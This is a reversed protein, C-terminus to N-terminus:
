KGVVAPLSPKIEGSGGYFSGALTQQSVVDFQDNLIVLSMSQQTSHGVNYVFAVRDPAVQKPTRIFTGGIPGGFPLYKSSVVNLSADTEIVFLSDLLLDPQVLNKFAFVLYGNNYQTYGALYDFDDFYAPIPEGWVTVNNETRIFETQSIYELVNPPVTGLNQSSIENGDADVVVEYQNGSDNYLVSLNDNATEEACVWVGTAIEADCDGPPMADNIVTFSGSVINNSENSEAVQDDADAKLILYYTSATLGAPITSSGAITEALFGAGYNGTLITGDQIDDNSLTNDTSIHAKIFFDGMIDANGVNALDFNYNLVQGDEVSPAPIEFNSIELDPQNGTGNDLFFSNFGINNNESQEVVEDDVDAVCLYWIQGNPLGNPIVYDIAYGNANGVPIGNAPFTQNLVLIDDSSLVADTSVYVAYQFNGSAVM